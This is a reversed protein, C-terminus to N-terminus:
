WEGGDDFRAAWAFPDIQAQPSQRFAAPPVRSEEEQQSTSEGDDAWSPLSVGKAGHYALGLSIVCDDHGGSPAAYQILRSPTLTYEMSQLEGILVPLNPFTFYRHEIGIILDEILVKKSANTFLYGDVYVGRRQLQELVPDGVGTMDMIVHADYLNAVECARNIQITYDIHNSREWFVVHKTTSDIVTIVSFDQHKAIDWGMEYDHGEQPEELEGAVCNMVGRFVGANEELFVALYEQQFVLDPLESKAAEIEEKPIYPNASTPATFSEWDPYQPDLGRQFLVYFFNRGKPTGLFLAKGRTDSLTPRLVETWAKEAIDACEDLVLFHIGLGRLADYNDSSCFIVRAGNPLEVLLESDSSHQILQNLAQKILRYAIKSQRYTPAVWACLTNRHECAFKVIENCGLFTKGIRRGCTVVRFRAKSSHVKKQLAHPAYLQVTIERSVTAM